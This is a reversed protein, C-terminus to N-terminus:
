LRDLLDDFAGLEIERSIEVWFVYTNGNPARHANLRYDGILQQIREIVARLVAPDHADSHRPRAGPRGKMADYARTAALSIILSM